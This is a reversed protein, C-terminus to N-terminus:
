AAPPLRGSSQSKLQRAIFEKVAERAKRAVGLRCPASVIQDLRSEVTALRGLEGDSLPALFLSVLYTNLYGRAVLRRALKVDFRGLTTRADVRGIGEKKALHKWAPSNVLADWDHINALGVTPYSGQPEPQEGLVWALREEHSEKAASEREVRVRSLVDREWEKVKPDSKRIFEELWSGSQFRDEIHAVESLDIVLDAPGFSDPRMKGYVRSEFAEQMAETRPLVTNASLISTTQLLSKLLGIGPISFAWPNTPRLPASGNFCLLPTSAPASLYPRLVGDEWAAYSGIFGDERLVQSGLNNWLGGDALLAVRPLESVLKIRPDPPIRLRRPPIGPFAASARVLEAISLRGADFTQFRRWGYVTKEPLLRRWIIGGNQSSAYVPLGLALDTMCLVHDVDRGSLSALRARHRHWRRESSSAPRFYRRDLLWEIALGRAMLLVLAVGFGIVVALWTWAVVLVHFITGASVGLVVPVLLLLAIWCKTLVGKRIITTVLETATADLQGPGLKELRCRQAIFANTISGGSVSAVQIVKPGLGRDVIALLAGLTALTARHGGGSLAIAFGGHSIRDSLAREYTEALDSV